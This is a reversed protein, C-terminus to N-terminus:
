ATGVFPTPRGFEGDRPFYALPACRCNIWEGIEGTRDGPHRLGNPFREGRRVVLGHMAVHTPRVREDAASVWQVYDVGGTELATYAGTNLASNVETRAIGEAQGSSITKIVARLNTGIERTGLGQEVGDILVAKVDGIVREMLKQSATFTMGELVRLAATQHVEWSLELGARQLIAKAMDEFGLQAAKTEHKLYADRVARSALQMDDALAPDVQFSNVARISGDELGEVLTLGVQGLIDRLVRRLARTLSVMGRPQQYFRPLVGREVLTITLAVIRQEGPTLQTAM